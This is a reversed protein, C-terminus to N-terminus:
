KETAVSKLEAKAKRHRVFGLVALGLSFLAIPTPEPVAVLTQPTQPQGVAVFAVQGGAVSTVQGGAAGPQAKFEICPNKEGCDWIIEVVGEASATMPLLALSILTAQSTVKLLRIFNRTM